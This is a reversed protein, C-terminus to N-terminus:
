RRFIWINHHTRGGGVLDETARLTQGNDILEYRVRNDLEGAKPHAIRQHVVLAAQEWHMTAITVGGNPDVSRHERGDTTVEYTADIPQGKMVFTRRFTFKPERHEIHVAGRELPSYDEHLQSTKLDLAWDGTFNPHEQASGLSGVALGVVFTACVLAPLCPRVPFLRAHHRM